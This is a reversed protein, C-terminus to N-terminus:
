ANIESRNIPAAIDAFAGEVDGAPSIAKLLMSGIRDRTAIASRKRNLLVCFATIFMSSQITSGAATHRM